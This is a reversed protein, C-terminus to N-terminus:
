SSRFRAKEESTCNEFFRRHSRIYAEPERRRSKAESVSPM